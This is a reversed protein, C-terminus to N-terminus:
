RTHIKKVCPDIILVSGDPFIYIEMCLPAWSFLKVAKVFYSKIM